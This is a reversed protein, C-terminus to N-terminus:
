SRRTGTQVQPTHYTLPVVRSRAPPRLEDERPAGADDYRWDYFANEGLGERSTTTLFRAPIIQDTDINAQRLVVTGSKLRQFPEFM